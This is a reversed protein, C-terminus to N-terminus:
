APSERIIRVRGRRGVRVHVSHATGLRPRKVLIVFQDVEGNPSPPLTVIDWSAFTADPWKRRAWEVLMFRRAAGRLDRSWLSFGVESAADAAVLYLEASPQMSISRHAIGGANLARYRANEQDLLARIRRVADRLRDVESPSLRTSRRGEKRLAARWIRDVEKDSLTSM